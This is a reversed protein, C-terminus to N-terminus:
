IFTSIRPKVTLTMIHPPLKNDRVNKLISREFLINPILCDSHSSIFLSTGNLEVYWINYMYESWTKYENGEIVTSQWLRSEIIVVWFEGTNVVNIIVHIDIGFLYSCLIHVILNSFVLKQVYINNCNIWSCWQNIM